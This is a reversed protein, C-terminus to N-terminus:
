GVMVQQRSAPQLQDMQQRPVPNFHEGQHQLSYQLFSVKHHFGFALHETRKGYHILVLVLNSPLSNEFDVMPFQILSPQTLVEVVDLIDCVFGAMQWEHRVGLELELSLISASVEAFSKPVLHFSGIAFCKQSLEYHGLLYSSM